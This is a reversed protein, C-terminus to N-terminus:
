ARDRRRDPVPPAQEDPEVEYGGAPTRRVRSGVPLQMPHSDGRRLDRCVKRTVLFVIV